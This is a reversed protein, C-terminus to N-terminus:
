KSGVFVHIAGSSPSGSNQVISTGCTPHVRSATVLGAMVLLLTARCANRQVEDLFVRYGGRLDGENVKGGPL